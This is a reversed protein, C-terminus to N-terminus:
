TEAVRLRVRMANAVRGGKGIVRGHGRPLMLEMNEKEAAAFQDGRVV